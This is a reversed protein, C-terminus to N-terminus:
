PADSKRVSQLMGFNKEDNYQKGIIGVVSLESKVYFITEIRQLGDRIGLVHTKSSRFV